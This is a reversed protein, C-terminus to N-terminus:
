YVFYLTTTDPTGPLADVVALTTCGQLILKNSFATEGNAVGLLNVNGASPASVKPAFGHATTSADNTTVDTLTLGGDPLGTCSTLTGSSPTGLVPTTLTPSTLTKNTLTQTASITVINVGEISVVGASVRALTTDNAHGLEISGVGLATSTSSTIGAVPLGTCNTLTGASPTGINPTTLAPSTAFVLAGSGTEDTVTAALNASSPTALFTAANSDLVAVGIVVVSASNDPAGGAGTERLSAGGFTFTDPAADTWTAGDYVVFKTQDNAQYITISTTDGNTLQAAFLDAVPYNTPSTGGLSVTPGTTSYTGTEACARTQVIAM